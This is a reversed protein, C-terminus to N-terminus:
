NETVTKNKPKGEESKVKLIKGNRWFLTDKGTLYVKNSM